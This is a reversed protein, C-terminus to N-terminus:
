ILEKWNTLEFHPLDKFSKWSGGWTIPVGHAAGIGTILGGIYNFPREDEWDVPYPYVDVAFSPKYNHPSELWRANSKEDEFARTQNLEDRYGCVLSFDIASCKIAADLVAQLQPSCEAKRKLSAQGYSFM